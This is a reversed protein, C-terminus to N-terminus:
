SAAALPETAITNWAGQLELVLAQVREFREASRRAHAEAIEQLFWAYLSALAPAIEGGREQDLADLLYCLIDQAKGVAEDRRHIDGAGLSARATALHVALKAYLAAVQRAPSLAGVDADLYRNRAYTSM